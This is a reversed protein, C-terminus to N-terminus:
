SQPHSSSHSASTLSQAWELLEDVSHIHLFNPPASRMCGCAPGSVIVQQGPFARCIENFVTELGCNDLQTIVHSYFHSVPFHKAYYRLTETKINNGFYTTRIGRKRLLYNVVLLPIEHWEEEPAFIIVNQGGPLPEELGDLACIIKERIILSSFHEQAPILHNTMWLLGVRQLFPFFVQLITRELGIRLVLSNITKEFSDADLTLSAETLQHVYIELDCCGPKMRSIEEQIEGPTMRAIRSIKYGQHYLFSIRLLQRLDDCDYVRHLSEKRKPTFLRYRQEWIRLTHAKVGCLNEIDRITFQNM